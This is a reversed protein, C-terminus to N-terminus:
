GKGRVVDEGRVGNESEIGKPGSVITRLSVQVWAISSGLSKPGLYLLGLLCQSGHSVPGLLCQVWSVSPVCSVYSGFSM